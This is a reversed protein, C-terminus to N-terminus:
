KEEIFIIELRENTTKITYLRYKSLTKRLEEFFKGAVHDRKFNFILWCEGMFSPRLSADEYEFRNFLFRIKELTPKIKTIKDLNM